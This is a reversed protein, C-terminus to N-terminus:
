LSRSAEGRKRLEAVGVKTPSEVGPGRAADRAAMFDGEQLRYRTAMRRVTTETSTSKDTLSGLLKELARENIEYHGNGTPQEKSKETNTRQEASGLGERSDNYVEELWGRSILADLDISKAGIQRAVWVRDNPIRNRTRGALLWVKILRGQELESLSQFDYDQLLTTHLKIWAASEDKKYHQFKDWNRVSLYSV